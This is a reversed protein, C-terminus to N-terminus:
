LVGRDIWRDISLGVLKEPFSASITKELLMNKEM